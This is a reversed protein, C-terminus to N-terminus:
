ARASPGPMWPTPRLGAPGLDSQVPGPGRPRWSPSAPSSFRSPICTTSRATSSRSLQWFQLQVRWRCREIALRQTKEGIERGVVVARPELRVLLAVLIMKQRRRECEDVRHPRRDRLDRSIKSGHRPAHTARDHPDMTVRAKRTVLRRVFGVDADLKAVCATAVNVRGAEVDVDLGASAEEAGANPMRLAAGTSRNARLDHLMRVAPTDLDDYQGRRTAWVFAAVGILVVLLALPLVLYIISM